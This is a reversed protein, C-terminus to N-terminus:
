NTIEVRRPKAKAVKPLKVEVVGDVVKATIKDHDLSGSRPVTFRRVFHGINYETYEPSLGKYADLSVKGELSLTDEDLEVSVDESKVGPMDAWLWLNDADEYIDVEPIFSRGALTQEQGTVEKKESRALEQDTM